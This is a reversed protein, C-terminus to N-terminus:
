FLDGLKLEGEVHGQRGAGGGVDPSQQADLCCVVLPHALDRCAEVLGKGLKWRQADSQVFLWGVVGEEVKHSAASPVQGDGGGGGAVAVQRGEGLPEEGLGAVEVAEDQRRVHGSEVVNAAEGGLDDCLGPAVRWRVGAWCGEERAREEWLVHMPWHPCRVLSQLIPHAVRQGGTPDMGGVLEEDM